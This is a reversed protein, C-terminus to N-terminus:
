NNNEHGDGEEIYLDMIELADYWIPYDTTATANLEKYGRSILFSIEKQIENKGMPIANRLNKAKNRPM